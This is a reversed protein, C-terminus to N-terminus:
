IPMFCKPCSNWLRSHWRGPEKFQWNMLLYWSLTTFKLMQWKPTSLKWMNECHNWPIKIRICIYTIKGIIWWAHPEYSDDIPWRHIGRVFALLASSQHKRQDASSCVTLCVTSVGTICTHSAMVSNIADTCHDYNIWQPSASRAWCQSLYHSTVQGWWAM